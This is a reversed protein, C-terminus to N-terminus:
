WKQMSKRVAAYLEPNKDFDARTFKAAEEYSYYEKVGSDTSATHKMSGMTQYNKKPQTKAYLDYIERVPTSPNFKAAFDNFEKSGYVDETVGIQSLERGREATRRHEALTKFLAKDRDSMNQVGMGALRDTEEVVEENKKVEEEM